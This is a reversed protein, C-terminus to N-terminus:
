HSSKRNRTLLLSALTGLIGVGVSIGLTIQRDQQAEGTSYVRWSDSPRERVIVYKKGDKATVHSFQRAM